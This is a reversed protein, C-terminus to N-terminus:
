LALDEPKEKPTEIQLQVSDISLRPSNGTNELRHVEMKQLEILLRDLFEEREKLMLEPTAFMPHEAMRALWARVLDAAHKPARPFPENARPTRCALPPGEGDIIMICEGTNLSKLLHSAHRDIEDMSYFQTSQVVRKTITRGLFTHKKSITRSHSQSAHRSSSETHSAANGSSKTRTPEDSFDADAKLVVEALSDSLSKATGEGVTNGTTETTGESVDTLEKLDYGDAFQQEGIQQYKVIPETGLALGIQKGFFEADVNHRFFIKMRCMDLITLLFPDQQRMPFGSSGQHLFVFSTQYKRIQRCMQDLLPGCAESFVPLEDIICFRRRRLHLPTALVVSLYQTLILNALMRQVEQTLTGGCELNVILSQGSHYIEEFDLVQSRRSLVAQSTPHELLTLFRNRARGIEAELESAKLSALSAMQQRSLEDPALNLLLEYLDHHPDLFMQADALTLGGRYLLTLWRMVWKRLVPRSGFGQGAEGVCALIVSATIECCIREAARRQYESLSNENSPHKLPNLGILRDPSSMDVYLVSDRCSQPQKQLMRAIKRASDGHPDIFLFPTRQVLCQYTFWEAFNSKGGGSTGSVELGAGLNPNRMAAFVESVFEREDLWPLIFPQRNTLSYDYPQGSM